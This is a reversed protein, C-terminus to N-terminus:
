GTRPGASDTLVRIFFPTAVDPALNLEASVLAPPVASGFRLETGARAAGKGAFETWHIRARGPRQPQIPSGPNRLFTGRGPTREIWGERDLAELAQRVTARSVGYRVCLEAESPLRDGPLLQGGAIQDRLIVDLQRYLPIDKRILATLRSM